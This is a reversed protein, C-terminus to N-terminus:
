FKKISDASLKREVPQLKLRNAYALISDYLIKQKDPNAEYYKLSKGFEDKNIHHIQFVKDYNNTSATIIKLSSDSIIDSNAIEDAAIMDWMIVKMTNIDIIENPISKNVCSFLISFGFIASMLRKLM